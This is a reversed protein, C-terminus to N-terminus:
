FRALFDQIVVAPQKSCEQAEYFAIVDIGFVNELDQLELAAAEQARAMLLGSKGHYHVLLDFTFSQRGNVTNCRLQPNVLFDIQQAELCDALHKVASSACILQHWKIPKTGALEALTNTDFSSDTVSPEILNAVLRSGALNSGSLDAGSLNVEIVLNRQINVKHRRLYRRIVAKLNDKKVREGFEQSLKRWLKAGSDKVYDPDYGTAQAIESYSKGEWAQRFVLEQVRSLPEYDLVTEVLALAEDVTM